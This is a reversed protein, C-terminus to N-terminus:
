LISAESADSEPSGTAPFSIIHGGDEVEVAVSCSILPVSFILLQKGSEQKLTGTIGNLRGNKVIVTRGNSEFPWLRFPLGSKVIRRLDRIGQESAVDIGSAAGLLGLVGPITWLHPRAAADCKCFVYGPFLPSEISQMGDRASLQLLPLYSQIHRKSLHFAVIREFRRRVHLAHWRLDSTGTQVKRPTLALRLELPSNKPTM